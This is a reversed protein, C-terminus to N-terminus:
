STSPPGTVLGLRQLEDLVREVHAAAVAPDAEELAGAVLAVLDAPSRSHQLLAEFVLWCLPTLRHTEWSSPDLVLAEGEHSYVEAARAVLLTV